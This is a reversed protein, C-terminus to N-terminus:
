ERLCHRMTGFTCTKWIQRLFIDVIGPSITEFTNIWISNSVESDRLHGDQYPDPVTQYLMQALLSSWTPALLIQFRDRLREERSTMEDLKM